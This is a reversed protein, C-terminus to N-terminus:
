ACTVMGGYLFHDDQLLVDNGRGDLVRGKAGAYWGYTPCRAWGMTRAITHRKVLQLSCYDSKEVISYIKHLLSNWNGVIGDM